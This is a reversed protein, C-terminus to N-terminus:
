LPYWLKRQRIIISIGPLSPVTFLPESGTYYGTLPLTMQVIGDRVGELLRNGKVLSSNITITLRGNTATAIREPIAKAVEEYVTGKVALYALTWNIEAAKATGGMAAIATSLIVGYKFVRMM